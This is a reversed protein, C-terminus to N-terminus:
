FALLIKMHKKEICDIFDTTVILLFYSNLFTWIDVFFYINFLTSQLKKQIINKHTQFTNKIKQEIQSHTMTIVSNLNSNLAQCFTHFESWEIIQFLLNQVIILSILAENIINQDLQKQFVQADIAKIQSFLKAQLYLQELQQLTAAQVQSVTIDIDVNYQTQLHKWMNFSINTFYIEFIMCYIYYKFKSDEDNQAACCYDWVASSVQNKSQKLISKLISSAFVSDTEFNVTSNM